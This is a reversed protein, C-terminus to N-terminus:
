TRSTRFRRPQPDLLAQEDTRLAHGTEGYSPEGTVSVHHPGSASQEQERETEQQRKRRNACLLHLRAVRLVTEQSTGKLERIQGAAVNLAGPCFISVADFPPVEM